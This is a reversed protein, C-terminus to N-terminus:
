KLETLMSESKTVSDKLHYTSLRIVFSMLYEGSLETTAM